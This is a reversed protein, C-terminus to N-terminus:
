FINGARLSEDFQLHDLTDKADELAALFEPYEGAGFFNLAENLAGTFERSTKHDLVVSLYTEKSSWDNKVAHLTGKISAGDDSSLTEYFIPETPIESLNLATERFFDATFLANTGIFLLVSIFLLVATVLTKM